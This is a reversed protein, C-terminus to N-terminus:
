SLSERLGSIDIIIKDKSIKKKKKKTQKKKKKNNTKIIRKSQNSRSKRKTKKKKKRKVSTKRKKKSKKGRKSKKKKKSKKKFSSSKYNAQIPTIDGMFLSSLVKDTDIEGSYEDKSILDTIINIFTYFEDWSKDGHEDGLEDGIDVQGQSMPTTIGGGSGEGLIEESVMSDTSLDGRLDRPSDTTKKEPTGTIDKPMRPTMGGDSGEESGQSIERPEGLGELETSLDGRLDRPSDTTKKEPTGTIDKPMRPTMGGDSGEESGQSIERPEGLGELETSLDRQLNHPLGASLDRTNETPDSLPSIVPSDGQSRPDSQPTYPSSALPVGGTEGGSQYSVRQRKTPRSADDKKPCDKQIERNIHVAHQVKMEDDVFPLSSVKVKFEEIIKVTVQPINGKMKKIFLISDRVLPVLPMNYDPLGSLSPLMDTSVLCYNIHGLILSHAMCIQRLQAGLENYIDCISNCNETIEAILKDRTNIIDKRNKLSFGSKHLEESTEGYPQNKKYGSKPNLFTASGCNGFNAEEKTVGPYHDNGIVIRTVVQKIIMEDPELSPVPYGSGKFQFKLLNLSCKFQNFSSIEPQIFLIDMLRELKISNECVSEIYGPVVPHLGIIETYFRELQRYRFIHKCDEDSNNAAAMRKNSVDGPCGGCVLTKLTSPLVHEVEHGLVDGSSQKSEILGMWGRQNTKKGYVLKGQNEPSGNIEFIARLNKSEIQSTFFIYSRNGNALTPFRSQTKWDLLRDIYIMVNDLVVKSCGHTVTFKQSINKKVPRKRSKPGDPRYFQPPKRERPERVIDYKPFKDQDSTFLIPESSDQDTTEMSEDSEDPDNNELIDSQFIGTLSKLWGKTSDLWGQYRSKDSAPETDSDMEDKVIM